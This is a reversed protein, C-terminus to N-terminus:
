QAGADVCSNYAKAQANYTEILQKEDLLLKNYSDVLTNYESVLTFYTPGGTTSEEIAVRTRDITGRMANLQSEYIEIKKKLLEDPRPCNPLPRGFEQVAFWVQRGEWSGRMVAVGIETYDSKLINARHGPSNMWGNMVHSSSAFDGLALNEGVNLYVYGFREALDGIGTGDPASHAFYQKQIMDLAKAEAMAYLRPQYALPALGEKARERNVITIIESSDLQSKSGSTQKLVTLPGPLTPRTQTTAKTSLTPPVAAPAPSPAPSVKPTVTGHALAREVAGGTGDLALRVSQAAKTIDEEVSAAVPAIRENMALPELSKPDDPLIGSLFASLSVAVAVIANTVYTVAIRVYEFVADM